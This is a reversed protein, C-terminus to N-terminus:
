SKKRTNNKPLRKLYCHRSLVQLAVGVLETITDSQPASHTILLERYVALPTRVKLGKRPAFCGTLKQVEIGVLEPEDHSGSQTMPLRRWETSPPPPSNAWTDM